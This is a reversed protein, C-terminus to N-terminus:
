SAPFEGTLKELDRAVVGGTVKAVVRGEPDVLYSEPLGGVGWRVSAQPDDVVPWPAHRAALFRRLNALDAHDYSVTVIAPPASGGTRAADAAFTLLQPTEQQCPVCWSAAFNVLVWRGAYSSLSVTTGAQDPGALAPAA